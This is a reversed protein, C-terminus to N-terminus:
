QVLLSYVVCQVEESLINQKKTLLDFQRMYSDIHFYYGDRREKQMKKKRTFLTSLTSIKVANPGFSARVYLGQLYAYGAGPFGATIDNETLMIKGIIDRPM